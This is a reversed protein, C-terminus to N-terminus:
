CMCTSTQKKKKNKVALTSYQLFLPFMEFGSPINQPSTKAYRALRDMLAIIINKTKVKSQLQSCTGLVTQLTALHFDDSFVQIVVEMLYEQAITDKCNVVQELIRPLVIESYTQADVGQLESM